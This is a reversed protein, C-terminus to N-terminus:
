FAPADLLCELRKSEGGIKAMVDRHYIDLLHTSAKSTARAKGFDESRLYYILFEGEPSEELFVSEVQMGENRLLKRVEAMEDNLRKAWERVLPLSGPKLRIRHCEVAM